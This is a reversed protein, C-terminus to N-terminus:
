NSLNIFTVSQKWGDLHKSPVLKSIAFSRKRLFLLKQFLNCIAVKMSTSWYYITICDIVRIDLDTKNSYMYSVTLQVLWGM